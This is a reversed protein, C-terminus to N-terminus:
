VLLAEVDQLLYLLDAPQLTEFFCGQFQLPNSEGKKTEDIVIHRWEAHLKPEKKRFKWVNGRAAANRVLRLFQFTPDEWLRNRDEKPISQYAAKALMCCLSKQVQEVSIVGDRAMTVLDELKIRADVDGRRASMVTKLTEDYRDHDFILKLGASAALYALVFEVFRGDRHLYYDKLVNLSLAREPAKVNGAAPATVQKLM